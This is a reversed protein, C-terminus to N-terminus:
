GKFAGGLGERRLFAQNGQGSPRERGLPNDTLAWCYRCCLPYLPPSPSHLPGQPYSSSEIGELSSPSLCQVKLAM